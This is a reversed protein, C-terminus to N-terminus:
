VRRDINIQELRPLNVSTVMSFLAILWTALMLGLAGGFGSLLLSETLTQRILRGRTAGLATRIAMERQRTTARSLLLNAVNACAILLVFGVAGFLVLLARQASGTVDEHVTVAHVGHGLNDDAMEQELQHSINALDANAQALTVGPKLRGIVEHSH